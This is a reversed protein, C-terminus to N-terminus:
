HATLKPPSAADYVKEGDIFTMLVKTNHVETIPIKFPNREVVIVDAHMGPAISGVTDRLGMHVAANETFIRMADDLGIKQGEGLTEKSGGPMQRTVMTEIALWPNVSPVVSWDSGAIILAHSDLADKIPIWRKMREDGVVARIDTAAIPTPYWIYPSFEWTMQLDRVRDIDAPDVFSNHGVDHAPGGWGNAKRAAAVSDIAGRVAGDGAAHFKITLGERDFRTVAPYLIEPALMAIGRTPEGGHGHPGDLYPDIMMATRGETPVGDLVVKVCDLKFRPQSYFARAEILAEGNAVPNTGALPTWRMCGRVRQKMAGSASMASMVGVDPLLVGADIFGTIGFSLMQNTSLTLAAARQADTPRPIKGNVLGMATERLLGTPEGRGDRDIAGGDPDKTDRTIGAQKLAASNVWLSHHSEDILAVPNKPAIRDLFKSNQEAPKFGAAVWNGGTIWEGEAKDTVCGAVTKAIVDSKAGPRIRCTFQEMGAFMAHVHGDTLGPLLTAGKLDVIRAGEGAQGRVDASSGVAIIVGKSVAVAEVWGGPTRVEGNVFVLDASRVPAPAAAAVADAASVQTGSAFSFLVLAAASIRLISKQM